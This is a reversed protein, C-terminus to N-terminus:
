KLKNELFRIADPWTTMNSSFRCFDISNSILYDDLNKAKDAGKKKKVDDLSGLIGVLKEPFKKKISYIVDDETGECNLRLLMKPFEAETYLDLIVQM